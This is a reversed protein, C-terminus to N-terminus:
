ALFIPSSPHNTCGVNECVPVCPRAPVGAGVVRTPRTRFIGGLTDDCAIHQRPPCSLVLTERRGVSPDDLVGVGVTPHPVSTEAVMYLRELRYPLPAGPVTRGVLTPAPRLNRSINRGSVGGPEMLGRPTFLTFLRFPNVGTPRVTGPAGISRLATRSKQGKLRKVVPDTNPCGGM